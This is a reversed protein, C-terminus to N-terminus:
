LFFWLNRNITVLFRWQIYIFLSNMSESGNLDGLFHLAPTVAAQVYRAFGKIKYSMFIAHINDEACTTCGVAPKMGLM